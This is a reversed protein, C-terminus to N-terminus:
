SGWSSEYRVPARQDDEMLVRYLGGQGVCRRVM